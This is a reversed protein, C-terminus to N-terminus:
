CCGATPLVKALEEFTYLRIFKYAVKSLTTDPELLEQAPDVGTLHFVRGELPGDVFHLAHTQDYVTM